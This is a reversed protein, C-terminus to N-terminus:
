SDDEDEGDEETEESDSSPFQSAELASILERLRTMSVELDNQLMLITQEKRRIIEDRM